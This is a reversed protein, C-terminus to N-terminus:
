APHRTAAAEIARTWARVSQERGFRSEALRRAALGLSLRREPERHLDRLAGALKAPDAPPVAVGVHEREVLRAAEGPASVLPPRGAALIELTKTPLAEEFIWEDRLVVLGIDADAYVAPIASAPLAGTLHVNAIGRDRIQRRLGDAEAGDGALTVRVVDPGALVAADLVAELGHALGLTGAYVAHVPGAGPPPAAGDFRSLDVSPPVCVVKGAAAPHGELHEAMRETPTVVADAHRYAFHELRDAVAIARPDRLMGLAVASAPWRDAVNLVLAARKAGAYAAGAAALFLPPSEVVVVDAPGTLGATALAGAAFTAHDALRGWTGRNAAPYVASRVIRVQGDRERLAPRNRYPPAISGAPYHPFGTHVTVEAGRAALGRALASIRVQPAGAEPPYYHTLFVVRM